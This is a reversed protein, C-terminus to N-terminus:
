RWLWPLGARLGQLGALIRNTAARPAVTGDALREVAVEVPCPLGSVPDVYRPYDILAAHVLHALSPRSTRHAPVPALDRTLGRGAYFPMGACVVPKGRILAEFGLISTLTWVEDAVEIAAAASVGSLVGDAEASPPDGRRLGAEVDPHPKWLIVAGPNDARARALLSAANWGAAAGHRLSADDSVQGAVLIRRGEPLPPLTAAGTNYKSLGLRVLHEILREARATGGAPLPLDLLRDLDSERTPDFHIGRSDAILSLPPVLAAGLGRSRLFGDEVRRLPVGAPAAGDSWVLLGRGTRAATEAGRAADARFVLRRERGFARALHARKWRRMGAAVHGARDERWVRVEAELQDLAQEFSCLRDRCPDYWVPYLIMAAAFLQARTLTRGRRPLPVEDRTLGWGAYFPRGFVRPRHGALIADFGLHSSAVYVATAGELMERPPIAPDSFAVGPGVTEAAYHGERFGLATEPHPRILIRAGPNEDQAAALMRAFLDRAEGPPGVAADDRCQDVVLVYGPPPAPRDTEFRNYKSLGLAAIRAMGTRARELLPTDDLLHTALLRELDSPADADHHVGTRDLLLGLPPAGERGLRVSRLFADECTLVPAGHKAALALGRAATGARGWVGVMAREGPAGTALDYGALGLIRRLGPRTYFGGNCVVLRTRGVAGPGGSDTAAPM